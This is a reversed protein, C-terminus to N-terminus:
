KVRQGPVAGADVGLLYVEAGGPGAACVMGESLGFKMQRPKLNAVVMVLRDVLQEPQYAQKIGAFVTRREDGGLSVTLKLLKNAEPVHEAAVIRAIRLDIKAFDEITIEPSIPDAQLPAPSDVPLAPPAAPAPPAEAPDAQKSEDIMAQVEELTVRKMLHKFERIPRGVLPTATQDWHRIPDNLLEGAQEALRPLIPALYIALQRFLNLAITCADRLETARAADKKLLWPAVNEIYANARYALEMILRTARNYDCGEYAAAIEAGAAAAQAFLGGDQPYVPSLGERDVFKATRSALNVVNNVLDANVKNIFEEVGLDLDDLRPGLKSAYYYRLAGPDLHRLYTEARIFTGTSKSMKAGNVTLFGHIHVKTPLNFGAVKLMGPWFLTHFYTIDKGLFHHIETHPDRWWRDFDESNKRCWAQTSALYGIPADFWVYWYNGPADPIEFGFYPAPRSIDWDRLRKPGESSNPDGLFHGRLYKAVEEQLHEGSQTWGELFDHLRELEIFLHPASRIEPPAGSLTSIPDILDTPAFTSGCVSCNDGPQNPARCHPCTGRVFRDALFTKAEPDYLQHVEREVVMGAARIANWIEHCFARNEPSHTSGYHEFAIDFGAFDREHQRQMDAILAEESRNEKRARIMIATGHTDDACIYICHHGRLKQFRVWIDTQIYEVLHGLHIPGNAYPLAATVLIRRQTM